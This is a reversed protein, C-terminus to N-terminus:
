HKTTVAPPPEQTSEQVFVIKWKDNIKKFLLTMGFPEYKAQKGNKFTVTVACSNSWLVYNESLYIYKEIGQAIMESTIQGWFQGVMQKYEAQNYFTGSIEVYMFDDFSFIDYLKTTDVHAAAERLQAIVPQIEDQIKKKQDESLTSNSKQTCSFLMASILLLFLKKM